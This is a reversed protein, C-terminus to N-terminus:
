RIYSLVIHIPQSPNKANRVRIHMAYQGLTCGYAVSLPEYLFWIAIFMAQRVWVPPSDFMDLVASFVLMVIIIFFMDIFISKIRDSLTCYQIEM